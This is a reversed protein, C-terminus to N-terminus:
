GFLLKCTKNFIKKYNRPLRYDWCGAAQGPINMKETESQMLIDQVQLIVYKAKCNLLAKVSQVLIQQNSTYEFGLVKCLEQKKETSLENLFGIFTNNDHTGLYCITDESINSVDYGKNFVDFQLVSMGVLNHKQKVQKSYETLAGLDEVVINNLGVAEEIQKFLKDGGGKVWKAKTTDKANIEYHEAFGAFHDLRLINCLNFMTKIKYIIYEFNNRELESWNYVCSGWNQGKACFEDPPAGGTVLPNNNKDLKFFQKNQYVDFSDRNPYIPMDGLIKVGLSNAYLLTEQWQAFLIYQVFVYKDIKDKNKEVFEIHQKSKKNLLYEPVLRWDYVGLVELLTQFIAFEYIDPRNVLFDQMQQKIKKNIRKYAIDFLVNKENKVTAYEVKYTDKLAKLNKLHCKKILKLKLLGEPDVLMPDISFTYVSGYPCNYENTINLPLVQWIDIENDALFKIFKQASGGLDGIGYDSVLSTVHCLVGFEKEM